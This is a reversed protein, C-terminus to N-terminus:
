RGAGVNLNTVTPELVITVAPEKAPDPVLPAEFLDTGWVGTGEATTANVEARNRYTGVVDHVSMAVCWVQTTAGGDFAGPAQLVRGLNDFAEVNKTTTPVPSCSGAVAPYVVLTSLALLTGPEAAGSGLDVVTGDPAVQSAVTVDYTIGTIGHGYGEATFQWVVPGDAAKSIEDGGLVLTVPGGSSHQPGEAGWRTNASFAVNGIRVTGSSSVGASAWWAAAVTVLVVVVATATAATVQARRM